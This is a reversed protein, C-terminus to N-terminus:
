RLQTDSFAAIFIQARSPFIIGDPKLFEDRAWIISDLMGEYLLFYGM